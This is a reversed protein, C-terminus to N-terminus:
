GQAQPLLVTGAFDIQTQGGLYQYSVAKVSREIVTVQYIPVSQSWAAGAHLIAVLALASLQTRMEVGGGLSYSCRAQWNERGRAGCKSVMTHIWHRPRM